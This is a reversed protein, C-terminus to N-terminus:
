AEGWLDTAEARNKEDKVSDRRRLAAVYATHFEAYTNLTDIMDRSWPPAAASYPREGYGGTDRFTPSVDFDHDAFIPALDGLVRSLPYLVHDPLFIHHKRGHDSERVEFLSKPGFMGSVNGRFAEDNPDTQPKLHPWMEAQEDVLRRQVHVRAKDILANAEAKVSRRGTDDLAKVANPNANVVREVQAKWFGQTWPATADLFATLADAMQPKLAAAEDEAQKIEADFDRSM